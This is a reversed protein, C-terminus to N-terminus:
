FPPEARGVMEVALNGLVLRTREGDVSYSQQKLLDKRPGLSQMEEEDIIGRYEEKRLEEGLGGSVMVGQQTWDSRM